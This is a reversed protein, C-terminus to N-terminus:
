VLANVYKEYEMLIFSVFVSFKLEVDMYPMFINYFIFFTQGFIIFKLFM